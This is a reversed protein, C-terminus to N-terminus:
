DELFVCRFRVGMYVARTWVDLCFVGLCLVGDVIHSYVGVDWVGWDEHGVLCTGM